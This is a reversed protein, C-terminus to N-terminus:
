PKELGKQRWSFYFITELSFRKSNPREKRVTRNIQKKLNMKYSDRPIAMLVKGQYQTKYNFLNKKRKSQLRYKTIWNGKNLYGRIKKFFSNQWFNWMGSTISQRKGLIWKWACVWARQWRTAITMATWPSCNAAQGGRFTERDQRHPQRKDKVDKVTSNKTPDLWKEELKIEM